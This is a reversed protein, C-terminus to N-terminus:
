AKQDEEEMWSKLIQLSEDQREDILHRLRDVASRESLATGEAVAPVNREDFKAPADVPDIEGTLADPRPPALAPPAAKSLIPRVVFLGLILAVVALVALQILRMADLPQTIRAADAVSGEVPLSEFEMTRISLTDGRDMDFGVTAAVLERLAEMETESRPAWETTGDAGAERLGDVLVATSIRAVAGPVRTLQREIQSVEYNIRERSGSSQSQSTGDGEAADGDPLNSAVTVDGQGSDTQTENNQEIDQSIAVRSEPDIRRETISEADTVTEVNVEVM